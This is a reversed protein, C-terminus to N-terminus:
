SGQAHLGNRFSFGPFAVPSLSRESILIGGSQRYCVSHPTRCQRVLIFDTSENIDAVGWSTYLQSYLRRAFPVAMFRNALNSIIRIIIIMSTNTHWSVIGGSGVGTGVVWTGVAIGGVLINGVCTGGVFTGGVAIGGVCTGGVGIGGVFTGVM